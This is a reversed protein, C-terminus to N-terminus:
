FGKKDVTNGDSDLEVVKYGLKKISEAIRAKDGVLLVNMNNPKLYKKITADIEKKSIKALMNNQQAIYNAPLNYDLIRGMFIAKQFGTEYSLADRQGISNKMFVLEEETIGNEYYNKMEKMVEYLASDTADSRIGSSFEFEGSVENGYFTTRAGYTWGKDERLNLNIRSNFDGGLAYNMLRTKNYEGTADYKLGTAYGVRFATQASKPIDVMYVQTNAVAGAAPVAPLTIKKNPLKSLFDLKPLVEQEKIDGVVVIKAGETTIYNNYYDQMDQLTINKITEETGNQSIGLIHNPGYNVKAFVVDAVQDPNSKLIRFYDLRQKKIRNFAAETFNPRLLREEVLAMTAGLNQKMCQISVFLSNVDSGISITSGLKQLETTMKETSYNRTDENMMTAFLSALGAKSMNGAQTLHGGPISIFINVLPIETNETGILQIGGPMDKRWYKPVKVSVPAATVPRKTRDFKDKGKEYVLGTYGYDPAIYKSSDIIFNNDAVIMNEQGKTLVSVVVAGKNKIYKNYAAMVSEKTVSEYMKILEPLKNPTNTFTAYEALLSVKNSVSQLSGILQSLNIGKFKDVDDQTVGGNLEFSDLAAQFLQWEEKLSVGPVPTIRFQLESGLEYAGHFGAANVAKQKKTIYQYLVSNKGQALVQTLCELNALDQHYNPVTPYAISLLPVRAYNDVYSVFRHQEVVPPPLKTPTVEPGRHISGFYKEVWKIVQAKNIDGGITLVANNPGYWRLFFNKLDNVDVRNLDEVYGITLWSYPHGYPYLNKNTFEGINGYPVNDYRQGRENKVTSRQIEFKKQTVADLFFGMRDSELWLVKELQNAPVTQYYNTRDRNTSGNVTGGAESILKIHEDDAVNDSGQFLMHEFFHAFGSKGIEERASGVHYTIDVRAIPDSHDEHLIFTLGNPLEYKEYPIILENGKKEVKEVLKAQSFTNSIFLLAAPLLLLFKKRM